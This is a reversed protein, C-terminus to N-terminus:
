ASILANLRKLSNNFNCDSIKSLRSTVSDACEKGVTFEEFVLRYIKKLSFM